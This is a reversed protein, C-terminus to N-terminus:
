GARQTGHANITEAVSIVRRCLDVIRKAANAHEPSLPELEMMQAEALLAALPNNLKHKLGGATQGAAVLAQLHRLSELLRAAMPSRMAAEQLELQQALAPPLATALERTPLADAIGLLALEDRPLTEPSDAVLLLANRFGRARLGRALVAAEGDMAGVALIVCDADPPDRLITPDVTEVSAAPVITQVVHQLVAAADADTSMCVLRPTRDAIDDGSIGATPESSEM